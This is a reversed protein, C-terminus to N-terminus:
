MLEIEEHKVQEINKLKSNILAVQEQALYNRVPEKRDIFKGAFYSSLDFEQKLIIELFFHEGYLCFISLLSKLIFGPGRSPGRRNHRARAGAIANCTTEVVWM